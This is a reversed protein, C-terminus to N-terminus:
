GAYVGKQAQVSDWYAEFIKRQEDEPIVTRARAFLWDFLGRFFWRLVRSNHIWKAVTQGYWIYQQVWFGGFWHKNAYHMLYYRVMRTELADKGFVEEAIWCMAALSAGSGALSSYFGLESAKGEAQQNAVTSFESGAIQSQQGSQGIGQGALGALNQFSSLYGQTANKGIQAGKNIENEELALNKEGGRPMDQNIRQATAQSQENIQQTAPANARAIATPDGSALTQYYNEATQFGPFSASFLQGARQDADQAIGLEGQQVSSSIGSKGGGM